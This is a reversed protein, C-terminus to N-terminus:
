VVVPDFALEYLQDTDGEVAAVIVPVPEEAATLQLEPYVPVAVSLTTPTPQVPKDAGAEEDM